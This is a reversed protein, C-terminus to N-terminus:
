VDLQRVRRPRPHAEGDAHAGNVRPTRREHSAEAAVPSAPSKRQRAASGGRPRDKPGASGVGQRSSTVSGRRGGARGRGGSDWPREHRPSGSRTQRLLDSSSPRARREGASGRATEPISEESRSRTCRQCRRRGPSSREEDQLGSRGLAGMEVIVAGPEAAADYHASYNGAAEAHRGEETADAPPTCGDEQGPSYEQPGVPLAVSRQRPRRPLKVPISALFAKHFLCFVMALVGFFIALIIGVAVFAQVISRRGTSDEHGASSGEPRRDRDPLTAEAEDGRSEVAEQLDRGVQLFSGGSVIVAAADGESARSTLVDGIRAAPAVRAEAALKWCVLWGVARAMTPCKGTRM